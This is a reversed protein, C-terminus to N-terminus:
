QLFAEHFNSGHISSHCNTCVTESTFRTHFGPVLAHCSFCLDAVSQQALMHRNPAGHPTHCSVCGDVMVSGHEFVFPGGKDTHCSVCQEQKFGGLLARTPPAHPDHCSACELIGEQLRHTENFQFSAAVDSHCESCTASSRNETVGVIDLGGPKLQAVGLAAADHVSHCTTCDLGGRAHASADFRPHTDAHCTLCAESKVSALEEDGFAFMTGGGGGEEIHTTADGHCATCAETAGAMSALGQTELAWHSTNALKAVQDEHCEVCAIEPAPIAPPTAAGAAAPAGFAWAVGVCALSAMWYWTCRYNFRISM